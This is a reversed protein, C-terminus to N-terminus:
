VPGDGVHFFGSGQIRSYVTGTPSDLYYVDMPIGDDSILVEGNDLEYFRRDSIMNLIPEPFSTGVWIANQEGHKFIIVYSPKMQFDKETYDDSYILDRLEDIEEEIEKKNSIMPDTLMEKLHQIRFFHEVGRQSVFAIDYDGLFFNSTATTRRIIPIGTGVVKSMFREVSMNEVTQAQITRYAVKKIDNIDYYIIGRTRVM